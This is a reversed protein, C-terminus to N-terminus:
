YVAIDKALVFEKKNTFFFSIKEKRIQLVQKGLRSTIILAEDPKALNEENQLSPKLENEREDNSSM